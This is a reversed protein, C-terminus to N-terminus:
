LWDLSPFCGDLESAESSSIGLVHKAAEAIVKGLTKAM